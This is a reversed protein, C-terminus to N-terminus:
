KANSWDLRISYEGGHNGDDSRVKLGQAEFSAKLTQWNERGLRKGIAMSLYTDGQRAACKAWATLDRCLSMLEMYDLPRNENSIRRLEKALSM